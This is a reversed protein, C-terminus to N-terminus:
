TKEQLDFIILRSNKIVCNFKSYLYNRLESYYDLWWFAPWGIVIFNVGLQHLRNLEWIATAGDAPPGWYQGGREIFPFVDRDDILNAGWNGDDVLILRSGKPISTEIEEIAIQLRESWTLNLNPVLEQTYESRRMNLHFLREALWRRYSADAARSSQLLYSIADLREAMVALPGTGKDSAYDIQSEQGSHYRILCLVKPIFIINHMAAMRICLNYDITDKSHPIDFPGVREIASSRMMVASFNIILKDGAVIRHLYELGDMVGEPIYGPIYRPDKLNFFTGKIDIAKVQSVSFAASLNQDLALVSERLFGPLLLDDDQLITLYPSSNIEIARNWNRFLGINEENRKYIIRPDIFSKIVAKTDDSSANDLVIVSFNLYEQALVSELCAKLLQSRNHTPIAITVKTEPKM